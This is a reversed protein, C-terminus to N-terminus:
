WPLGQDNNYVCKGCKGSSVDCIPADDAAAASAFSSHCVPAMPEAPTRGGAWWRGGCGEWPEGPCQESATCKCVGGECKQGTPCPTGCANCNSADTQLDACLQASCREYGNDCTDCACGSGYSQCGAVGQLM